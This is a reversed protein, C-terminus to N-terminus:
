PKVFPCGGIASTMFRLIVQTHGYVRDLSRDAGSLRDLVGLRLFSLSPMGVSDALHVQGMGEMHYAEQVRRLIVGLSLM